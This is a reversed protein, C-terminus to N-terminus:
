NYNVARDRSAAVVAWRWISYVILQPPGGFTRWRCKKHIKKPRFAKEVPPSKKVPEYTSPAVWFILRHGRCGGHVVVGGQVALTGCDSAAPKLDVVDPSDCVFKLKKNRCARLRWPARRKGRHDNHNGSYM